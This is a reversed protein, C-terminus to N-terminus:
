RPPAGRAFDFQRKLWAAIREVPIEGDTTNLVLALAEAFAIQSHFSRELRFQVEASLSRGVQAAAMELKLKLDAPARFGIYAFGPEAFRGSERIAQDFVGGPETAKIFERRSAEEEATLRRLPPKRDSSDM